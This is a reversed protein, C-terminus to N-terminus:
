SLYDYHALHEGMVDELIKQQGLTLEMRWKNNLNRLPYQAIDKMFRKSPSLECFELIKPFVASPDSCLDEYKIDLFNSHPIASRSARVADLVITWQIGALAVFSKDHKEWTTRYSSTLEGLRWASPGRWGLWWSLHLLSNAVARGDRIFHIFKADPFIAHLFGIRPWGTIKLLLRNRKKTLVHSMASRIRSKATNTLDGAVLDRCSIFAGPCSLRWFNWAESPRICSKLLRGAFPVSLSRMFHRNWSIRKPFRESLQSLWAVGPHRAFIRHFATSGSRGSSLIIIPKDVTM